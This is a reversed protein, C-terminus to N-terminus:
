HCSYPLARVEHGQSPKGAVDRTHAIVQPWITGPEASPLHGAGYSFQPDRMGPSASSSSTPGAPWPSPKCGHTSAPSRGAFLTGRESGHSPPLFQLPAARRQPARSGFPPVRTSQKQSKMGSKMRQVTHVPSRFSSAHAQAEQPLCAVWTAGFVVLLSFGFLVVYFPSASRTRVHLQSLEAHM